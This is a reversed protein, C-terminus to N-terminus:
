AAVARCKAHTFEEISPHWEAAVAQVAILVERATKPTGDANRNWPNVTQEFTKSRTVKGGCIPCYGERQQQVRVRQYTTIM